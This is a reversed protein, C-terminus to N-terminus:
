RRRFLAGKLSGLLCLPRPLSRVVDSTMWFATYGLDDKSLSVHQLKVFAKKSGKSGGENARPSQQANSGPSRSIFVSCRQM